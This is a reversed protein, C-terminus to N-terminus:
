SGCVNPFEGTSGPVSGAERESGNWGSSFPLRFSNKNHTDPVDALDQFVHHRIHTSHSNPRACGGSASLGRTAAPPACRFQRLRASAISLASLRRDAHFVHFRRTGISFSFSRANFRGASNMRQRFSLANGAGQRIMRVPLAPLCAFGSGTPWTRAATM